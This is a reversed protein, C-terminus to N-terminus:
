RNTKGSKVLNNIKISKRIFDSQLTILYIATIGYDKRLSTYICIDLYILKSFKNIM